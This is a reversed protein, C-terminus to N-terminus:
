DYIGEIMYRSQPTSLIPKISAIKIFAIKIKDPYTSLQDELFRYCSVDWVIALHQTEFSGHEASLSRPTATTTCAMPFSEMGDQM